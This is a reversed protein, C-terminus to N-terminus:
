RRGMISGGGPRAKPKGQADNEPAHFVITEGESVGSLVEYNKYDTAGLKIARSELKEQGSKDKVAVLLTGEGPADKTVYSCPVGLVNNKELILFEVNVNIGPAVGRILSDISIRVEFNGLEDTSAKKASLSIFSVSGYTQTGEVAEPKIVAKQGLKLNVYDIEGIQSIVELHAFDAITGIATGSQFGSTASVAIEGEKVLLNTIV